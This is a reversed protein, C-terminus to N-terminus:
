KVVILKDPRQQVSEVLRTFLKGPLIGIDEAFMAFILKNIFHAVRHSDYGSDRWAYSPRYPPLSRPFAGSIRFARYAYLSEM